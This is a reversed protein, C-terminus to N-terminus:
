FCKGRINSQGTRRQSTSAGKGTMCHVNMPFRTSFWELPGAELFCVNARKETIGRGGIQNQLRALLFM